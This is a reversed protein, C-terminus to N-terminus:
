TMGQVQLEVREVGAWLAPTLSLVLLLLFLLRKRQM